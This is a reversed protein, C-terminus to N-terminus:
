TAVGAECLLDLYRKKQDPNSIARINYLVDARVDRARWDTTIEASQRSYRIRITMPQRGELRAAMVQEGGLRPEIAAAVEFRVTFEAETNGYGDDAQGRAQFEVRERLEGSSM